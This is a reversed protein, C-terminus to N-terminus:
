ALLASGDIALRLRVLFFEDPKSVVGALALGCVVAVVFAALSPLAAVAKTRLSWRLGFVLTLWALGALATVAVGM